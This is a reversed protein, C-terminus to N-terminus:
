WKIEEEGYSDADEVKIGLEEILALEIEQAKNYAEKSLQIKATEETKITTKIMLRYLLPLNKDLFEIARSKEKERSGSKILKMLYENLSMVNEDALKEFDKKEKPTMRIKVQVTEQSM